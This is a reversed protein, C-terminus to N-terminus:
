GRRITPTRYGTYATRITSAFGRKVFDDDERKAATAAEQTSVPRITATAPQAGFVAARQQQANQGGVDRAGFTSASATAVGPAGSQQGASRPTGGFFGAQSLDGLTRQESVLSAVDMGTAIGRQAMSLLGAPPALATMAVSAAVKGLSVLSGFADKELGTAGRKITGERVAEGLQGTVGMAEAREIDQSTLSRDIGFTRDMASALRGRNVSVTRQALNVNVDGLKAAIDMSEQVPGKTIGLVNMALGSMMAAAQEPTQTLPKPTTPTLVEQPQQMMGGRAGGGGIDLGGAAFGARAISSTRDSMAATPSVSFRGASVTGESVDGVGFRGVAARAQTQGAAAAAAAADKATAANDAAVSAAAEKAVAAQRDSEARAADSQRGLSEKARSAGFPDAANSIGGFPGRSGAGSTTGRSDGM